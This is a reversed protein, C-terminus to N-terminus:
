VKGQRRRSLLTGVGLFLLSLLTPEPVLTVSTVYGRMGYLNGWPGTLEFENRSLWDSLIPVLTPLTVDNIATASGDKLTWSLFYDGEEGDPFLNNMSSFGYYDDVGALGDNVVFVEFGVNCPDTQFTLSGITVSVGYFGSYHWYEGWEPDVSSNVTDSDYWYTGTFTAGEVVDGVWEDPFDNSVQSVVGEFAIEIVYGQAAQAWVALLLVMAMMRYRKM